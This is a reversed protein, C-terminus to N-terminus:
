AEARALGEQAEHWRVLQEVSIMCLGWRDAFARCADRCMMGGDEADEVLECLVGAAPLGAAACLDLASETHGRRVLVSGERACLPVM